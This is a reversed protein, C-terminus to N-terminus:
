FLVAEVVMPLAEMPLPDMVPPSILVLLPYILRPSHKLLAFSM